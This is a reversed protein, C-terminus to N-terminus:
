KSRKEQTRDQGVQPSSPEGTDELSKQGEQRWVLDGRRVSHGLTVLRHAAAENWVRSLWMLIDLIM